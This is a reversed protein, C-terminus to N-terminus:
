SSPSAGHEERWGAPRESQLHLHRRCQRDAAFVVNAVVSRGTFDFGTFPTGAAAANAFDTFTGSGNNQKYGIGSGATTGNQYLIDVDGDNDFDGYVLRTGFAGTDGIPDAPKTFTIAM